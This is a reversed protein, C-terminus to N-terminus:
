QGEEEELLMLNRSKSEVDVVFAPIAELEYQMSISTFRGNEDPHADAYEYLGHYMGHCSYGLSMAKGSATRSRLRLPAPKGGDLTANRFGFTQDYLSEVPAFGGLYGKLTGDESLTAKLVADRLYRETIMSNTVNEFRVDVPETILVGEKIVGKAQARYANDQHMAYTSYPLPDRQASLYIPDANAYMGVTVDEDNYLDDVGELTILVGWSGTLMEVVFGNAQGSSQFAKTCGVARYFQNDVGPEGSRDSFDNGDVQGDVNFGDVPSNLNDVGRFHPDPSGMEPNMCLDSGNELKMMQNASWWLRRNYDNESEGPRRKGEPTQALAEAVTLSMGAPCAGTEEADDSLAYRIDSVVFGLVGNHPIPKAAVPSMWLMPMLSALLATMSAPLNNKHNDVKM